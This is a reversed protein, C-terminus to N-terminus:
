YEQIIQKILDGDEELDYAFGNIVAYRTKGDKQLVFSPNGYLYINNSPSKESTSLLNMPFHKRSSAGERLRIETYGQVLLSAIDLRKLAAINQVTTPYVKGPVARYGRADIDNYGYFISLDGWDTISAKYYYNSHNNYGVENRRLGIDLTYTTGKYTVEAEHVLVDFFNNGGNFPIQEYATISAAEYSKDAIADFSSLLAVFNLQRIYQKEPDNELGGCEILITSTGWKQINDGFARPEFTDDYKGVKGPIYEQLISNLMGIMRMANGRGTNIEKEFNYAPALFSITATNPNRGASYYRSQDHLNFGWDADLEDRVRKLLQSEPCQLRVADRNLDIGLANRRQFREAGDPNLMPIFTITLERQIKQRFDDFEDGSKSLFNFIDMIAMTATSEDGHMQSWLLVQTAGTGYTIQYIDRDEISKGAKKVKFPAKLRQILPVITAHKFRRKTISPERFRDYADHFQQYPIDVAVATTETNPMANTTAANDCNVFLLLSIITFFLRM